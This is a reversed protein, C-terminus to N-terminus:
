ESTRAARLGALMSGIWTEVKPLLATRDVKEPQCLAHKLGRPALTAIRGRDFILGFQPERYAFHCRVGDYFRGGVGQEDPQTEGLDCWLTMPIALAPLAHQFCPTEIWPKIQNIDAVISKDKWGVGSAVQVFMLLTSAFGDEFHKWCIIDIGGDQLRTDFGHPITEIARYGGHREWVRKLAPHFLDGTARPAGFSLIDGDIYGAVALCSCVQFLKGIQRELYREEARLIIQKHRIASILLCVCYFFGSHRSDDLGSFRIGSTGRRREIFTFPYSAGYREIRFEIDEIAREILDDNSKELITRDIDPDVESAIALESEDDDLAEAAASRLSSFSAYGKPSAIAQLELWDVLIARYGRLDPAATRM